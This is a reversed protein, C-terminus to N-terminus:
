APTTKLLHVVFNAANSAAKLQKASKNRKKNGDAWDCIAKVLVWDVRAEQCAVYLGAGEMEGGLADPALRNLENRYDINDILKDGSLLLGPEVLTHDKGPWSLTAHRIWNLPAGSAPVKDGRLTISSDSSIRQLDYLLLQKSVLIDGISFKKQDVGFAIGVMIVVSPNLANIAKRVAEQSGHTGGSGMECIALHADFGGIPGLHQYVYGDIKKAEPVKGTESVFANILTQSEVPTATVLLVRQMTSPPTRPPTRNLESQLQFEQNILIWTRQASVSEPIAEAASTILETINSPLAIGKSLQLKLIAALELMSVANGFRQLNGPTTIMANSPVYGVIGQKDVLVLSQDIQHAKNKDLVAAVVSDLPAAHRTLLAVLKSQWDADEKESSVIHVAPYYKPLSGLPKIRRNTTTTIAVIQRIFESLKPHNELRQLWTLDTSSDITIEDLSLTTCLAGSYLHFKINLRTPIGDVFNDIVYPFKKGHLGLKDRLNALAQHFIDTPELITPSYETRIKGGISRIFGKGGKPNFLLHPSKLVLATVPALESLIKWQLTVRYTM